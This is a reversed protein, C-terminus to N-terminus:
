NEEKAYISYYVAYPNRETIVFILSKYKDKYREFIKPPDDTTSSYHGYGFGDKVLRFGYKEIPYADNVNENYARRPNNILEEIHEEIYEGLCDICFLEYGVREFSPSWFAGTPVTRFIRSCNSCRAWCDSWELQHNEELQDMEEIEFENWNALLINEKELEYGPEAYDYAVDEIREDNYIDIM